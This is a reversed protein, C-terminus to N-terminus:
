KANKIGLLNKRLKPASTKEGLWIDFFRKGFEKDLVQGINKGNKYFLTTGNNTLIGTLVTGNEVNPFIKRMEDKWKSLKKYDKFGQNKMEIISRDAIDKGYLKMSYKLQLAMPEGVVYNESPAYLSIKYVDWVLFSLEGKGVMKANPIYKKIYDSNINASAPLSIFFSLLYIFAIRLM